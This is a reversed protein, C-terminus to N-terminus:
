LLVKDGRMLLLDPSSSVAPTKLQVARQVLRDIICAGDSWSFESHVHLHVVTM